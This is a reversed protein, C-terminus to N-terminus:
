RPICFGPRREWAELESEPHPDSAIAPVALRGKLEGFQRKGRARYLVLRVIPKGSRASLRSKENRRRLSRHLITGREAPVGGAKIDSLCPFAPRWAPVARRLRAAPRVQSAPIARERLSGTLALPSSGGAASRAATGVQLDANGHRCATRATPTRAQRTGGPMMLLPRLRELRSSGTADGSRPWESWRM